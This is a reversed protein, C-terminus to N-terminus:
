CRRAARRIRPRRRSNGPPRASNLWEADNWDVPTAGVPEFRIHPDNSQVLCMIRRGFLAAHRSTEAMIELVIQAVRPCRAAFADYGTFVLALGTDDPSWGYEQDAVSRMLDSLADLNDGYPGPFLAAAIDRHLDHETSWGSSDFGTVQYSHASLWATTEDLVQSRWFLTVPSFNLMCYARDQDLDTEPDFAAM